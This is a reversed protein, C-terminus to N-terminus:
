LTLLWCIYVISVQSLFLHIIFFMKSYIRSVAAIVANLVTFGFFVFKLLELKEFDVYKYEFTFDWDQYPTIAYFFWMWFIIFLLIVIHFATVIIKKIKTKEM